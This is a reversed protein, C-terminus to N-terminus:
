ATYSGPNLTLKCITNKLPRLVLDSVLREMQLPGFLQTTSSSPQDLAGGNAYKDPITHYTNEHM